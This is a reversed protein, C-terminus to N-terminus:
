FRKKLENLTSSDSKLLAGHCNGLVFCARKSDFTYDYTRANWRRDGVKELSTIHDNGIDAHKLTVTHGTTTLIPLKKFPGM